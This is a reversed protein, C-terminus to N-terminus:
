NVEQTVAAQAIAQEKPDLEVLHALSIYVEPPPPGQLDPVIDGDWGVTYDFMYQHGHKIITHIYWERHEANINCLLRGKKYLVDLVNWKFRAWRERLLSPLLSERILGNGDDDLNGMQAAKVGDVGTWTVEHAAFGIPGIVHNIGAATMLVFEGKKAQEELIKLVTDSRMAAGLLATFSSYFRM